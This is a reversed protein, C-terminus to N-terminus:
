ADDAEAARMYEDGAVGAQDGAVRSFVAWCPQWMWVALRVGYDGAAAVLSKSGGPEREIVGMPGKM